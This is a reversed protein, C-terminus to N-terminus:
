APEPKDKRTLRTKSHRRRSIRLVGWLMAGAVVLWAGVLMLITLTLSM